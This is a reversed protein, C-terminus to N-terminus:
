VLLCVQLNSNVPNIIFLQNIFLMAMLCNCTNCATYDLAEFSINPIRFWFVCLFMLCVLLSTTSYSIYLNATNFLTHLFGPDGNSSRMVLLAQAKSWQAKITQIFQIGCKCSYVCWIASFQRYMKRVGGFVKRFNIYQTCQSYSWYWWLMQCTLLIPYYYAILQWRIVSICYM